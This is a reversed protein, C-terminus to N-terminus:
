VLSNVYGSSIASRIGAWGSRKEKQFYEKKRFGRDISFLYALSDREFNNTERDFSHM